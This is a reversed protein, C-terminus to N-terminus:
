IKERETRMGEKRGKRVQKEVVREKGHKKKV